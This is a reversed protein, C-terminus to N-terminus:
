SAPKSHEHQGSKLQGRVEGARAAEIAANLALLNTQEAIGRIVNLIDSIASSSKSLDEVAQMSSSVTTSLVSLAANTQQTLKAGELSASNATKSQAEVQEGLEKVQNAGQTLHEYVSQLEEMATQENEYGDRTHSVHQTLALASQQLANAKDLVKSVIEILNQQM